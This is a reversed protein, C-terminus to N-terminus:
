IQNLIELRNREIDYDDKNIYHKGHLWYEDLVGVWAFGHINHLFNNSDVYCILDDSGIFKRNVMLGFSSYCKFTEGPELLRCDHEKM